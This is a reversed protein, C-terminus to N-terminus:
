SFYRINKPKFLSDVLRKLKENTSRQKKALPIASWDVSQLSAICQAVTLNKLRANILFEAILGNWEGKNGWYHGIEKDCAQLEGAHNLAISFAFQELLRRTCGTACMEDCARLTLRIVERARHAPLAIVGANWMMTQPHIAIGAVTKGCLTRHMKRLTKDCGADLRCEPKHMLMNGQALARQVASLDRALFTDSDAYLLHEAPYQAQVWELAKIKVRWFFQQEGQWDRLTQADIALVQARDQLWTYFAPQDTVILVRKLLPDKLYTLASFVAQYHNELREGFTLFILNM